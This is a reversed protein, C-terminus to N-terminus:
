KAQAAVVRDARPLEDEAPVGVVAHYRCESAFTAALKEDIIRLADTGINIEHQLHLREGANFTFTRDEADSGGAVAIRHRGPAAYWCFYTYANTVGVLQGNDRVPVTMATGVHTPRFMCVTAVDTRAPGATAIPPSAVPATSYSSCATLLLISGLAPSRM